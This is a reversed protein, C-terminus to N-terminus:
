GTPMRPNKTEESRSRVEGSVALCTESKLESLNSFRNPDFILQVFGSRDRMDVFFLGGLDRVKHAWGNLVVQNGVDALRLEGCMVSRQVFGMPAFLICGPEGALHGNSGKERLFQM